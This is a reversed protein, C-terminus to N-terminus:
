AAREDLTVEILPSWRVMNEVDTRRWAAAIAPMVTWREAPDDIVRARAPLDALVAGKLHVTMRPDAELNRLWSRKRDAKPMGSIYIRGGINHFMIEIRRPLRTQRGTTTIDILHGRSLARAIRTDM